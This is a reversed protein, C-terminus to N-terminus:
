RDARESETLLIELVDTMSPGEVFVDASHRVASRAVVGGFGVVYAGASRAAVDSVGDGVLAVRGYRRALDACVLAKGEPRALPASADFGLYNGDADLEIPVARVNDAAIDLANALMLVPRLIGGSVVFVPKELKRLAAITERVGLVLEESYRRGLWELDARCPRVRELRRAYIADIPVVGDMAANTLAAIEAECGARKALEDIGEIRSLTSDCDFCIADFRARADSKKM